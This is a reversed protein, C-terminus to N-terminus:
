GVSVCCVLQWFHSRNQRYACRAGASGLPGFQRRAHMRSEKLVEQARSIRLLAWKRKYSPPLHTQRRGSRRSPLCADPERKVPPQWFHAGSKATHRFWCSPGAPAHANVGRVACGFERFQTPELRSALASIGLRPSDSRTRWPRSSRM